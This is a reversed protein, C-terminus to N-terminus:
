VFAREEPMGQQDWRELQKATKNTNKAIVIQGSRVDDRLLRMEDIMADFGMLRRTDSNNMIRSPGTFEMEPGTEGVLRIGGAHMGGSAFGPVQGTAQSNEIMAARENAIAADFSAKLGAINGIGQNIGRLEDLEYQANTYILELAEIQDDFRGQDLKEKIEAETALSELGLAIAEEISTAGKEIGRSVEIYEKADALLKDLKAVEDDRIKQANEIQRQANFEANAIASETAMEAAGIQADSSSQIVQTQAELNAVTQEATSLQGTGMRELDALLNATTGQARRFDTATSFRGADVNSAIGAAAGAGSLNGTHLANRLTKVANDWIGSPSIEGILKDLGGTIGRLELSLKSVMARAADLVLNNAEIRLDTESQIADRQIDLYTEAANISLQLGSNIAAQAARLKEDEARKQENVLGTLQQMIGNTTTEATSLGSTLATKQEQLAAIQLSTGKRLMQLADNASQQLAAFIAKIAEAAKGAEAEAIDAARKAEAEAIDAARKAEAEAIDAAKMAAEAADKAVDEIHDYYQDAVGQLRLLTAINDQGGETLANQASVLDAFGQRTEPLPLGGMAEGLRRSLNEFQDAESLFNKEFGVLADSFAQIGGTKQVLADAAKVLMETPIPLANLAEGMEGLIEPFHTLEDMTQPVQFGLTLAAEKALEFETSVRALTEGLTEGAQQMEDLFPVVTRVATDFVESFVAEIEAQQAAADLGELSIMQTDLIVSNLRETIQEASIGLADAGASVSDVISGFVQGFQQNVADELPKFVDGVKYSSFASSRSKFTAFADVVAGDVLDTINGGLIRIGEDIKKSRGGLAKGIIKGLNNVLGLSFLSGIVDFQTEIGKGILNKDFLNTDVKPATFSVSGAARQTMSVVGDIGIQLSKLAQLMGTNINVLESTAEAILDTSNAISQSKADISGLVTGTGQAAQRAATPDLDDGSLYDAIKSVALAAIGGVVGGIVPGLASSFASSGLTQAMTETVMASLSGAFIGGVTVGLGSWDGGAITSQLTSSISEGTSEWIKAMNKIHEPDDEDVVNVPTNKNIEALVDDLSKAEKKTKKFAALTAALGSEVTANAKIQADREALIAAISDDRAGDLAAYMQNFQEQAATGTKVKETLESKEKTLKTIQDTFHKYVPAAKPLGRALASNFAETTKALKEQVAELEDAGSDDFWNKPNLKFAIKEGTLEALSVLHALEVALLKTVASVNEPWLSFADSVFDASEKGAFKIGAFSIDFLKLTTELSSNTMGFAAQFRTGIASIRQLFVGSGIEDSLETIKETAASVTQSLIEGTGQSNIQRFLGDWSDSLNSIRGDLTKMQEEAAGAFTVEGIQQLFETVEKANKGVRTTVGQFTFAFADTETSAKIGFEKLREFEGTVADAVAEVFQNLNKGMASATNSFSILAAETPQLGLARMKIFSNTIEPISVPLRGALVELASFAEGALKASGTVTKLSSTLVGTEREIEVLKNISGGASLSFAVVSATLAMVGKTVREASRSLRGLDSDATRVQRSDARIQLSAIDTM